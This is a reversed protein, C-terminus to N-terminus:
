RSSADAFILEKLRERYYCFDEWSIGPHAHHDLHPVYGGARLMFPIKALEADIASRGSAIKIKDIGGFIQLKPYTKRIRILDNGAQIEIPYIATIGAELFLPILEDLNGDSDVLIVKLGWDRLFRSVKQYCPMMFERFMAPSILSGGKYAMDEWFSACDPKIETFVRDWLRIWFDALFSMLDKILSPDEYFSLLLSEEGMLYRSFGYFGCPSGGITLPCERKRYKEVLSSWNQPVRKQFSLQFRESKLQEFDQRTQIQWGIFEPVSAEEKNLRKKVGLEDQYTIFKDSEELVIHEFKPEPGSNVPLCIMGQDFGLTEHVEVDRMRTTSSEIHAANEGRVSEGPPRQRVTTTCLGEKHWRVLTDSWYGMEWLLNRDPPEFNMIALFREYANM